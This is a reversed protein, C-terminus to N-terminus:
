PIPIPIPAPMPVPIPAPIPAPLPFLGPAPLPLFFPSLSPDFAPEYVYVHEPQPEGNRNRKDCECSDKDLGPTDHKSPNTKNNQKNINDYDTKQTNGTGQGPKTGWTDKSGDARTFKTDAVMTGDKTTITLDPYRVQAPNAARNTPFGVKGAIFRMTKKLSGMIQHFNKNTQSWEKTQADWLWPQQHKIDIKNNPHTNNYADVAEEFCKEKSTQKPM